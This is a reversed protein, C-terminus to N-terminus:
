CAPPLRLLMSESTVNCRSTHLLRSATNIVRTLRILFSGASEGFRSRIISRSCVMRLTLVFVLASFVISSIRSIFSFTMTKVSYRAM